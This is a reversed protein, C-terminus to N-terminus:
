SSLKLSLKVSTGAAGAAADDDVGRGAVSSSTIAFRSPRHLHNLTSLPQPKMM